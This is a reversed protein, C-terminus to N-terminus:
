EGGGQRRARSLAARAHRLWEEHWYHPPNDPHDGGIEPSNMELQHADVAEILDALCKTADPAAIFLNALALAKDSVMRIDTVILAVVMESVSDREEIRLEALGPEKVYAGDNPVVALAQYPATWKTESM